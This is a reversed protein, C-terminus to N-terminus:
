ATRGDFFGPFTGERIMRRTAPPGLGTAAQIDEVTIPESM